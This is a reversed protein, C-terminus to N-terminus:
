VLDLTRVSIIYTLRQQDALVLTNMHQPGCSFKVFSNTGVKNDTGLTRKEQISQTIPPLHGAVETKHPEAEIIQEFYYVTNKYQKRGAKEVCVCVCVCM